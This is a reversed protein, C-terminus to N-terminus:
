FHALQVFCAIRLIYHVFFELLIVACFLPQMGLMACQVCYRKSFTHFLGSYPATIRSLASSPFIRIQLRSLALRPIWLREPSM